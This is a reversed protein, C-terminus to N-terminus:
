GCDKWERSYSGGTSGSVNGVNGHALKAVFEDDIHSPWKRYNESWKGRRGIELWAYTNRKGGLRAKGSEWIM